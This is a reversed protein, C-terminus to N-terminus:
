RGARRAQEVAKDLAPLVEDAPVQQAAPEGGGTCYSSIAALPQNLEHAISSAMEGM